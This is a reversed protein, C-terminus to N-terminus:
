ARGAGEPPLTSVEVLKGKWNLLKACMTMIEHEELEGDLDLDVERYDPGSIVLGDDRKAPRWEKDDGMYGYFFRIFLREYDADNSVASLRVRDAPLDGTSQVPVKRIEGDTYPRGDADVKEVPHVEEVYDIVDFEKLVPSELIFEYSMM